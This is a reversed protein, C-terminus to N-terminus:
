LDACVGVCVNKVSSLVCINMNQNFVSHMFQKANQGGQEGKSKRAETKNQAVVPAKGIM